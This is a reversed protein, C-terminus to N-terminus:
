NTKLYTLTIISEKKSKILFFGFILLPIILRIKGKGMIFYYIAYKDFRVKNKHIFIDINIIVM